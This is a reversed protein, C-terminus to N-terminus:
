KPVAIMDLSLMRGPFGTSPVTAKSAAPPRKPNYYLPRLEGLAKSAADDTVFYTAKALHEFDSGTQELIGGLLGFVARTQASADGPEPSTIISTFIRSTGNARAVRCYVTPTTMGPPTLFELSAANADAPSAAVMEIELSPKALWEVFVVPPVAAQNDDFAEKFAELVQGSEAMPQLFVKFQVADSKKLRLFDLTKMLSAITKAASEKTTTGQELQGSVYVTGGAPLLATKGSASSRVTSAAPKGAASLAYIGNVAAAAADDRLRGVVISVAPKHVGPIASAMAKRVEAAIKEDRVCWELRVPMAKDSGTEAPLKEIRALLEEIQRAPPGAQTPLLQDTYLLSRDSFAVAQSSGTGADPSICRLETAAPINGSVLMAFLIAPLSHHIM